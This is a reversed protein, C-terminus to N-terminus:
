VTVWSFNPPKKITKKLTSKTKLLIKVPEVPLTELSVPTKKLEAEIDAISPLKGKLEKPLSEVLKTTYSSIGIPKNIDRLAYEAMFNDKSRCLLLGITPLDTPHKVLSDVASLYLNIQGIDRADFEEAKLEVVIFCRLKLHYFLMDIYLDKNGVELHYQRGIFAFGQGLELLFKQIHAVLGNEIEKERAEKDITLFDFNYPDKLIQQALDSDPNPLTQKFNTIAKGQRKYLDSEIWMSLVSRSWGNEITQQAYWLRQNADQAKELIVINHGWPINAITKATNENSYTESFKRMYRLNRLSFGSIGPFSNGLDHAITEVAKTGWGETEIKESLNRGIRWYLLTLEKSVAMATKLQTQEIDKKIQELFQAYKKPEIINNKKTILYIAM